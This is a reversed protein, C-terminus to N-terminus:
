HVDRQEITLVNMYSKATDANLNDCGTAANGFTLNGFSSEGSEGMQLPRVGVKVNYTQGALKNLIQTPSDTDDDLIARINYKHFSCSGATSTRYFKQANVLKNEVFIGIAYGYRVSNSNDVTSVGEVDVVMKQKAKNYDFEFAPKVSTASANSDILINWGTTGSGYAFSPSSAPFSTISVSVKNDFIFNRVKDLDLMVNERLHSFVWKEGDWVTMTPILNPLAPYDARTSTCVVVTGEVPNLVTTQDTPSTLAVRPVLFGQNNSRLELMASAHPTAGAAAVTRKTILMQGMVSSFGAILLIIIYSQKKM